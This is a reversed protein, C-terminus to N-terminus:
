WQDDWPQSDVMLLVVNPFYEWSAEYHEALQTEAQQQAM